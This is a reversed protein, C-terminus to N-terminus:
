KKKEKKVKTAAAPAATGKAKKKYVKCPAPACGYYVPCCGYAPACTAAKSGGFLGGGSFIGAGGGGCNSAGGGFFFASAPEACLHSAFGIAAFLAIVLAVKKM